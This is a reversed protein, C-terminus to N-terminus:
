ARVAMLYPRHEYDAPRSVPEGCADTCLENCFYQDGRRHAETRLPERCFACVRPSGNLIYRSASLV